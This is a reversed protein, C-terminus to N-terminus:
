TTEIKCGKLNMTPNINTQSTAPESGGGGKQKWQVKKSKTTVELQYAKMNQISFKCKFNLSM